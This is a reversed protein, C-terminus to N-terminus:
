VFRTVVSISGGFEEVRLWSRPRFEGIWGFRDFSERQNPALDDRPHSGDFLNASPDRFVDITNEGLTRYGGSTCSVGRVIVSSRTCVDDDSEGYQAFRTVTDDFAHTENSDTLSGARHTNSQFPEVV